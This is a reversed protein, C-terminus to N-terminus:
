HVGKMPSILSVAHAICPITEKQQCTLPSLLTGTAVVLIRSVAGEALKNLFHCQFPARRGEFAGLYDLKEPLTM